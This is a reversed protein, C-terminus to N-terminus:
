LKSLHKQAMTKLIPLYKGLFRESYFKCKYYKQIIDCIHM